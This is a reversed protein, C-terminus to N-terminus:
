GGSYFNTEIGVGEQAINGDVHKNVDISSTAVLGEAVDNEVVANM